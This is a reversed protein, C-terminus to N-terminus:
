ALGVVVDFYLYRLHPNNDDDDDDDDNNWEKASVDVNGQPCTTACRKM